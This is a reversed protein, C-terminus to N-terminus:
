TITIRASAVNAGGGFPRIEIDFEGINNLTFIRSANLQYWTGFLDSGSSAGSGGLYTARVEYGDGVTATANTAVWEGSYGLDTANNRIRSHGGNQAFIVGNGTGVAAFTKNTLAFTPPLQASKGILSQIVGM